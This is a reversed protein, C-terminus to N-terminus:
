KRWPANDINWKSDTDDPDNLFTYAFGVLATVAVIAIFYVTIM